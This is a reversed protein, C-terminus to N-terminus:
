NSVYTAVYDETAIHRPQHIEKCSILSPQVRLEAFNDRCILKCNKERITKGHRKGVILNSNLDHQHSSAKTPIGHLHLQDVIM